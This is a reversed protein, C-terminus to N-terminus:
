MSVVSSSTIIKQSFASGRDPAEETKPYPLAECTHTNSSFWIGCALYFLCLWCQDLRQYLIVNPLNINQCKQTSNCLKIVLWIVAVCFASPFWQSINGLFNIMRSVCLFYGESRLLGYQVPSLLRIKKQTSQIVKSKRNHM